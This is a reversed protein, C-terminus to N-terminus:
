NMLYKKEAVAPDDWYDILGDSVQAWTSAVFTKCGVSVIFGNEVKTIKVSNWKSIRDIGACEATERLAHQKSQQGYRAQDESM